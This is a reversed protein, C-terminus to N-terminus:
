WQSGVDAGISFLLLSHIQHIKILDKQNYNQTSTIKSTEKWLIFFFFIEFIADM